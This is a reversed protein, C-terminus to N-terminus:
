QKMKRQLYAHWLLYAAITRYPKWQEALLAIDMKTATKDLHKVQRTSHVLAIDGTPFLDCRHLAMMLFVDATWHGIGKVQLLATRVVADPKHQLDEIDLTGNLVTTALSRAYSIKQRSFYCSRLAEDSLLLLNAPTVAGLREELKTLAARASALSVQQELIFHILSHFTPARSWLPPYGYQHIINGLDTDQAALQNCLAHFNGSGFTQYPSHV